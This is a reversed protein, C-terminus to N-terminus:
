DPWVRTPRMGMAREARVDPGAPAGDRPAKHTGAESEAPKRPAPADSPKERVKRLGATLKNPVKSM